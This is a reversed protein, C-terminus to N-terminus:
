YAGRGSFVAPVTRALLALDRRLNWTTIYEVDMAVWDEFDVNSRGSVQWICTLGPTVLLRRFHARGYSVYEEPLPPRPGVLSMDGRLVNWFQPLEDISVKRILRGVSTIRPDDRMKFAPGNVENADDLDPRDAHAGDVMSRFKYMTFRRGGRGVREQRYLVPGPTDLKVMIATLVLLPSLLLLALLSGVVDITRKVRVQWPKAALLGVALIHLDADDIPLEGREIAALDIGIYDTTSRSLAAGVPRHAALEDSTASAAAEAAADSDATQARHAHAGGSNEVGM